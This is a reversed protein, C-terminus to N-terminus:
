SNPMGSRASASQCSLSRCSSDRRRSHCAVQFQVRYDNAAAEDTQGDCARQGDATPFHSQDFGLWPEHEAAGAALAERLQARTNTAHPTGDPNLVECLVLWHGAGRLPDPIFAAPQM